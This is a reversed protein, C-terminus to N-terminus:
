GALQRWAWRLLRALWGARPPPALEAPDVVQLHEEGGSWGATSARLPVEVPDSM